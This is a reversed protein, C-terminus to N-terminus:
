CGNREPRSITQCGSSGAGEPSGGTPEPTGWTGPDVENGDEKRTPKTVTDAEKVQVSSDITSDAFQQTEVVNTFYHNGRNRDIISAVKARVEPERDLLIQLRTQDSKKLLTNKITKIQSGGVREYQTLAKQCYTVVAIDSSNKNDLMDFCPGMALWATDLVFVSAADAYSVAPPPVDSPTCAAMAAVLITTLILKRM